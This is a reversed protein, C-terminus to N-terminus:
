SRWGQGPRSAGLRGVEAVRDEFIGPFRGSPPNGLNGAGQGPDIRGPEALLPRDQAVALVGAKVLVGPRLALIAEYALLIEGGRAVEVARELRLRTAAVADADVEAHRIVPADDDDGV